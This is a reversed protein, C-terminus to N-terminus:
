SPTDTTESAAPADCAQRTLRLACCSSGRFLTNYLCSAACLGIAGATKLGAIWLLLMWGTQGNNPGRLILLLALGIMVAGLTHAFRMAHEDTVEMVPRHLRGVTAAYLVILPAYRVTLLANFALIGAAVAVAWELRWYWAAWLLAAVGYKCFLFGAKSVSVPKYPIM